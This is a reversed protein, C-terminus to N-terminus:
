NRVSTRFRDTVSSSSDENENQTSGINLLKKYYDERDQYDPIYLDPETKMILYARKGVVLKGNSLVPCPTGSLFMSRWVEKDQCLRGIAAVKMGLDFLMKSDRRRNCNKDEKYKGSAYGFLNTQLSGSTGQLCNELGNSLYSPSIASAAPIESSSGAGNYTNSVSEDQTSNHSNVTSDEANTNLSGDQTTDAFIAGSLFCLFFLWSKM